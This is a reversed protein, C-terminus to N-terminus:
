KSLEEWRLKWGKLLGCCKGSDCVRGGGCAAKVVLRGVFVFLVCWPLLGAPCWVVVGVEFCFDFLVLLPIPCGPPVVVCECSCWCLLNVVFLWVFWVYVIWVVVLSSM